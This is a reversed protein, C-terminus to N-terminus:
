KWEDFDITQRGSVKLGGGRRSKGNLGGTGGQAIQAVSCM